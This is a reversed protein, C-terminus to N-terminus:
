SAEGGGAFILAPIQAFIFATLYAGLNTGAHKRNQAKESGYRRAQGLSGITQAM